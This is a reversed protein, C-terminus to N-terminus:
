YNLPSFLCLPSYQNKSLHQPQIHKKKKETQTRKHRRIFDFNTMTEWWQFSARVNWIESDERRRDSDEDFTTKISQKLYVNIKIYFYIILYINTVKRRAKTHKRMDTVNRTQTYKQKQTHTYKLPPHPANKRSAEYICFYYYICSHASKKRSKARFPTCSKRNKKRTKQTNQEIIFTQTYIHKLKSSTAQKGEGLFRFSFWKWQKLKLGMRAGVELPSFNQM